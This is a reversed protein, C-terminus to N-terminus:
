VIFLASVRELLEIWLNSLLNQVRLNLEERKEDDFWDRCRKTVRERYGPGTGWEALCQNWFNSDRKLEEEFLTEGVVQMKRLVEDFATQLVSESQTILMEASAYEPNTKLNDSIARFDDVKKGLAQNALVKAGHGLQYSYNLSAWDGGRRISAHITSTHAQSLQDILSAQIQRKLNPLQRNYTLWHNLQNAAEQLVAKEQETERNEIFQLVTNTISQLRESLHDRVEKLRKLVFRRIEEPSDERANFFAIPLNQLGLPALANAIQDSKLDYGEEVSDVKEGADDKVALAEEPRPLALVAAKLPMSRVGADKARELLMRAEAGPANNFYSCLIAITHPDNLHVELDARGATRDIGKTDVVRIALDTGKLLPMPLIVEIRKPLTFGEHRGNNIAEFSEKIWVLPPKGKTNDYWIHRTDRKHLEMKSLIEIVLEKQSTVKSALIKADDTRVLKGDVKEKRTKLGSMNRIVREIEQSIGQSDSEKDETPSTRLILEAFDNVHQRIEEDSCPEVIIGYEPGSYAHIECVTVGGGGVELVPQFPGDTQSIELASMRCIATSKGVGISGIFAITHERKHVLSGTLRLEELYEQVRRHFSATAQEDAALLALQQGAQEAAWLSDQDPHDLDPNRLISWQRGLREGLQIAENTGIASLITQLEETTLEREGSEVRSLSAPSWIIQKALAAQKIGAKERILALHHGLVVPSIETM